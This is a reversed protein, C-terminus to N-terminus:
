VRFNWRRFAFGRRKLESLFHQRPLVIGSASAPVFVVDSRAMYAERISMNM